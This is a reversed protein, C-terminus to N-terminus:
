MSYLKYLEEYDLKGRIQVRIAGPKAELVDVVFYDAIDSMDWGEAKLYKSAEDYITDQIEKIM